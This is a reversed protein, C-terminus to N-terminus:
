GQCGEKNAGNARLRPAWHGHGHHLQSIQTGRTKLRRSGLLALLHAWSSTARDVAQSDVPVAPGVFAEHARRSARHIRSPSRALRCDPAFSPGPYTASVVSLTAEAMGHSSATWGLCQSGLKVQVRATRRGHALSVLHLIHRHSSERTYVSCSCAHADVTHIHM